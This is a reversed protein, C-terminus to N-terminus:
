GQGRAVIECGNFGHERLEFPVEAPNARLNCRAAEDVLRESDHGRLVCVGVEPVTAVRAGPALAAVFVLFIGQTIASKATSSM